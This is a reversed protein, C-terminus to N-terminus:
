GHRWVFCCSRFWRPNVPFVYQCDQRLVVPMGTPQDRDEFVNLFLVAVQRPLGKCYDALLRPRRLHVNVSYGCKIPGEAEGRASLVEDRDTETRRAVDAARRHHGFLEFALKSDLGSFRSRVLKKCEFRDIAQASAGQSRDNDDVTM